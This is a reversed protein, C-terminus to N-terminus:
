VPITLDLKGPGLKWLGDRCPTSCAYVIFEQGPNTEDKAEIYFWGEPAIKGMRRRGTGGCGDCKVPDSM